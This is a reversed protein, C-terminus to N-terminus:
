KSQDPSDLRASVGNLLAPLLGAKDEMVEKTAKKTWYVLGGSLYAQQATEAKMVFTRDGWTEAMAVGISTWM